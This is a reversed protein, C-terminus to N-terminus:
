RVTQTFLASTLFMATVRERRLAEALRRADLATDRDIGVVCGGNLLAGWIEWTAADFAANAVQAVRDEPGFAVLDADRVLRVIGRHPVAVGKPRGTSGSTYIVYALSEPSVAPGRGLGEGALPLPALSVDNGNEGKRGSAPSLPGPPSPALLVTEGAFEPVRGLLAPQALLVRAGADKLMFALRESPHDPDLPLYAGGAHLVALMAVVMEPSREALLGVRADPGVGRAALEGALALSRHHLEAYTLTEGGYSVAPADPTRAAQAAFLAHVSDEPRPRAPPNWAELVRAREADGLIEVASLPRDPAAAVAELLRGFHEAMREMTSRDFLDTRFTFAGRLADGAEALTVSLDFKAVDEGRALADVELEGMRLEGRDMNQLAFLVQFLPTHRLSREVRLEEVLREFPLDQHAFAGLVTERARGLLARFSPDGSLDTRLVLTNVFFGILGETEVRDRGAVPTGVVVDDQGSWRGMLAQFAALLAIFPTAGEGHALGRLAASAEPGLVFPVADARAGPVAPRPRDTPLELVPPAGALADRWYSVQAELADGSVRERQWVAFDPYQVPLPPLPSPEGRSFAGYLASVERTLVGSSWGDSVIHHLDFVVGWDDAALRLALVRFLPGRALDFPRRAEDAVQRRTEADRAGAPLGSLDLVPVRVPAAPRVLQVPEGSTAAFVTRLSEHRRAMEAVAARLAAVDLAGRMRMPYPMNYATSAPDMQQIFWLRQQAFSLPVPGDTGRPAIREAAAGGARRGGLIADVREALGAVTPAEFLARLPVEAGFAERARAIVRTAVLSHGGLLFFDDRAGVREVGLVEAWIGALTTETPTAPAVYADADPALEPAPLARRDVKGNSTLPLADLLTFSAPIMYEPLRERLHARLEAAAPAPAGAPPAAYAALRLGGAGDDRAVVVADLLAPHELLAAEIEGPEIRFGRIKVQFDVRGVFELTGDPLWRGRDGSRYMRAGPVGTYPDAPFREATLDPRNLYGRTVGVGALFMEGPVGVPVPEFRADLVYVRSNQLPRGMPPPRTPDTALIATCRVSHETAGYGNFLKRGPAWRAVMEAGCTEGGLGVTELHPLDESPTVVMASPTGKVHTVRQRRMLAALEEGPMLEERPAVVLAAGSALATFVDLVSADFHLPAFLLSRAGPRIGYVGIYAQASNCVGRHPVMVGKPRGTSGSTYIVYALNAPDAGGGPAVDPEDAFADPTVELVPLGRGPFTRASDPTALVLAAGSDELMYAIRDAPAATDLPVYAGGARMVGLIAAVAEPCPEMYLAVRTEPGVGRRRLAHAIRASLRDLEARSVVRDHFLVAAGEPDLAAQRAFLGHLTEGDWFPRATDNWSRLVLEREAAPLLPLETVPRAPDAAVGELLVRFHELMREVTAGDFLDARFALSAAVQGGHDVMTLNLDFKVAEAATGLPEVEVGGMAPAGGEPTQLTFMVQFFPTRGLAREPALEEVLKEFPVEQHAFVGLTTERVRGLLARFSPDGSLDTRLVLTNVFFGILGELEVRSRGAVVSGVAVDETGAYRALLLQWAALLAMFATAGEGRALARLAATTEPSLLMRRTGGPAESVASPRVRDYPLELAPPVGDLERRWWALQRELAEGSLRERQWVAYDAYQVPLEPLRPERGEVSASYLESVERVLVATSWGDSAVHHVVVCLAWEAADLRVLLPRLLPGTGLDFPRASEAAVLRRAEGERAEPPLARLDAAPLRVPSAPHIVQVAAGDAEAFTTRLTEHRAAIGTLAARLARPDVAGRLRLAFPLNYASGGPHLRDIFWLRQQAFSAPLPGDRPVRVLPPAATAAAPGAAELREALGAVTPAEFLARLPMEVGLAEQVRTAVRTALLSHGGLAFFDDHVGVRGAGLVEAWIAALVEEAPTRPAVHEGGAAGEPAPLARRDVKGTPTLPLADLVVVASPVMYEPLRGRLHARLEAADATEGEAAAVYAVLRREGPADERVVAVADRVAPHLLLAAEVEGPEIRFGRIKVQQDVRGLFELEGTPLWRARDGSRYARAGPEAAFPDPVFQAATLEPRGLYGRAVGAGGIRLEGPVGPPQAGGLADCVYLRVNALPAGIRHGEIAGRAPVRHGSVLVAAETPGYTVHTEALPFAERMEALLDPPVLDGGVFARRVGALRPEASARVEAAVQRMLAPVAHLLTADGVEEVLRAPDMVREREVLRATAGVTLPLITEFLWIDFAFSALSPMVDGARVGYAERTAHLLNALAGHEVLVGKPTGTSGSTYIVYALSCPVPFLSCGAENPERAAHLAVAQGSEPSDHEGEGRTPSPAPPHPTDLALIEGGFEPVSGAADDSAVVMRLGADRAILELREAPYGPDLPVYAGGAKWIGLVGVVMEPTREVCLGVRAEPGVGRARLRLALADSRADLEAYTLAGGAFALATADPARRAADAFLLHAPAAPFARSTANWEELVRAREAGTLLELASLRRDPHAALTALAARLHEMMRAVTARDWLAARFLASGALRDGDETLSLELDFRAIPAGGGLPAMEMGGLRLEGRENNQLALMVQFLPTHQLSREPQLEEVLREFPVDQHAQAGLVTERARAVLARLAPDGGLETRLVLTNVFFGILGELESRTRGAIPTGVAVDDQGSWRALVAAFGALLAGFLTTGERQALARLGATAGGDLLFPVADGRPAPVPPRPRDTPLELVPPAGALRERWFALQTELVEGTLWGRQWEAYDPYQVPLEPLPSPRGEAFAAYLASVEGTLVGMSWGDSVVHHMTFLVASEGGGLRLLASRLLPGRALDFPRAAEEAALRRLERERDGPALGGLEVVPLRAPGAPLVLQVPEGAEVGFVTRLSEHRRVVEALVRRLTRADPTGGLRLGAPLNYAASGPEMRDIFWLRRQAFSLPAPGGGARRPIPAAAGPAEGRLRQIREALGAVTPAEFLARLPLEAGFADRVRSAVRTALLSHGGLAFFGDHVGVRERRLVAAFIGALTEEAATRPAVYEADGASADPAPLARRHIKGSPTLPLRELAVWAAPVMYEPLRAATWARLEPAGPVAEGAAPVLYAVLRRDGPADERVDVVAERVAPHAELAAEVEGPEIRFGRVKVQADTRGLFEIEGGALWRARDGPRYLRAGPRLAFPDPVFREATLEPRGLYGRAVNDGGLFLEGPIGVPAPRLARDLVYCQTNAVPAGISPLLPWAEPGGELALATVVHTESPGYQNVLACGPMRALWRRIPETVRLQEGATVVERLAAPVIGESEAAEALHQLAIFPLFIREVRERDLFRALRAMDTRVEEPVLLLTGGSAWTSFIEQFSVDFSISAFQLTRAAAPGRWSRLQWALLNLLPRQPMAVGKPRGTSGSTYIVYALSDPFQSHSLAFTRSHSLASSSGADGDLLVTEAGTAPLRDRLREQTLLVSIGADDLMYAVRDEPYAPDIPVYAAGAKLAGLVGVVLELSREACLGVRADAGVGLSRLRAALADARRDLEAYTLSDGGFVAAPVDPTRAAQAEFLAALGGEVPYPADTDNWRRVVQEREAGTLLELEWVKAEPDAAMRGLLAVYHDMMRRMTAADWLAARYSATGVVHDGREETAVTLDFKATDAGAPMPAMRVPGLELEGAEVNQLTLLVQFLPSHALSREPQVEEVLREFPLDQNSQAELVTTRVRGLLERVTPDGGLDTRMVLTNVFFGILGELEVRTRNAIPSGVLVDDQGSYRALLAQLGALVAMFLTGGESRVLARLARTTDDPVVFHVLAGHPDEVPPRPRDTPLELLAPADALREKWYRIQADLREGALHERQWLAYDPYQLPLEPLPSAAGRAFAAYLASVERTLVGMSWGDSAIHHMTFLVAADEDGLRLLTSRLLPGAALDFPRAAEADALRRAERERDEERLGALEVLPLVWRGPPLVTQVPEGDAMSFVTRLSEHRRAIEGLARELVARDLGGRIRLPYPMNYAPSGPELQAIFWLRQQAFSLPVPAGGERRRIEPVAAARKAGAREELLKRLLLRREPSLEALREARAADDAPAAPNM